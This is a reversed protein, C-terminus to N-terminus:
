HEKVECSPFGAMAMNGQYGLEDVLGARSTYYGDATMNKLSKFFRAGPVKWDGKDAAECLPTLLAVQQPESLERFPKGHLKAAERDLRTLGDRFLQQHEKETSVVGDIYGPVGAQAGGPTDTPPIILDALKALTDMQAADFFRSAPAHGAQQGYLQDAAFPFACTSGVAGLIRLAERRSEPRTAEM